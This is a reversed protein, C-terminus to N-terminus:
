SKNNAVSHWAKGKSKILADLMAKIVRTQERVSEEGATSLLSEIVPIDEQSSEPNIDFM